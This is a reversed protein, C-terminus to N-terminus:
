EKDGRPLLFYITAGRGPNNEARITGGHAKIITRSIALGLGMGDEKTTLYSVFVRELDSDAIGKGDDKVEVRITESDGKVTRIVVEGAGADLSNLVLNLIVQQIQIRDGQVSPLHPVLELRISAGRRASEGQLLTIVEEIASNVDLPVLEIGGKRMMKRLRLIIDDARSSDEAIDSLADRVEELDQNPPSLFRLAARANSLIATLPQKIEHALSAAMEGMSSNRSLHFLEDRIEEARREAQRRRTIDEFCILLERGGPLDIFSTSVLLITERKMGGDDLVLSAEVQHRPWGSQYTEDLVRQVPCSTRCFGAYGCGGPDDRSHVCRIANGFLPKESLDLEPDLLGEARRNIRKLRRERDLIIMAIPADDFISLFAQRSTALNEESRKRALANAFIEGLLRVRPILETPWSRESRTTGVALVYRISGAITIPVSLNSKQKLRTLSARDTEAEAPLEDLSSSYVIEGRKIKELGWPFSFSIKGRPLPEIGPLASSSLVSFASMDPSVELLTSRDAGMFEVVHRLGDAIKGEILESPLNIFEASIEALFLEFKIRGAAKEPIKEASGEM